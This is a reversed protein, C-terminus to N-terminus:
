QRAEERLRALEERASPSLFGGNRETYELRQLRVRRFDDETLSDAARTRWDSPDLAGRQGSERWSRRVSAGGGPGFGSVLHIEYDSDLLVPLCNFAAVMRTVDAENDVEVRIV